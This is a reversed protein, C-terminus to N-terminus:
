KRLDKFQDFIVGKKIVKQVGKKVGESGSRRSFGGYAGVVKGSPDRYGELLSGLFPGFLPDSISGWVM